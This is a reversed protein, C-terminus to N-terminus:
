LTSGSSLLEQDLPFHLLRKAARNLRRNIKVSQMIVAFIYVIKKERESSVFVVCRIGEYALLHFICILILASTSPITDIKRKIYAAPWLARNNFCIDFNLIGVIASFFSAVTQRKHQSGFGRTDSKLRKWTFADLLNKEVQSFCRDVWRLIM